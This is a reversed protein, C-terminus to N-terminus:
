LFSMLRPMATARSQPSMTGTTLRASSSLKTPRLAGDGIEAFAGAGLFELRFFDCPPVNVMVFGPMKPAFNPMGMMLWGCSAMRPM